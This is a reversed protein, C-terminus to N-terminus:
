RRLHENGVLRLQSPRSVIVPLDPNVPSAPDPDGTSCDRTGPVTRGTEAGSDADIETWTVKGDRRRSVWLTQASGWGADCGTETEAVAHIEGGDVNMWEVIPGQKEHTMFALRTGDPSVSLGFSAREVLRRCGLDDCRMIQPKAEGASLFWVKGNPLCAPSRESGEGTLGKIVRGTSDVREVVIRGNEVERSVILDRGCHNAFRIGKGHQRCPVSGDAQREALCSAREVSVFLLADALFIPHGLLQQPIRGMRRASHRVPDVEVLGSAGTGAYYLLAGVSRVDLAFENLRVGAVRELSPLRIGTVETHGVDLVASVFVVNGAVSRFLTYPQLTGESLVRVHRSATSFVGMHRSDVDYSFTQSDALWTPESSMTPEATPVVPVADKGGPHESLFAFARGDPVHGQYVLRKGDPSLDPCGEAYAAPVLPSPVRKRTVTDVDEARPPSGWVFRITRQDPLLRTCHIREPVEVLVTSVDTWDAAEGTPVILPSEQASSIRTGAPRPPSRLLGVAVVAVLTLGGAVMVPRRAVVLRRRWWGRRETLLRGAEGASAIRRAPEKATCARCAELVVREEETLKRGIDPPLMEGAVAESWRPKEGFVIEHMVLGLAWVDSAFSSLGGRAIEPAMYAVTGGHVSTSEGADTALGFDSLVLRGDGMRLLNQPTLDRHVIGAKHIADLASAVARADAIREELPRAALAGSRIEDRLTGNEALEMVLFVRAEAQEFDFVRCVHPHQIQRALKVERALREAWVREGALEARVIKIAVLARLDRDYARVVVGSGGRGIIKEITYRGGLVMGHRVPIAEVLDPGADEVDTWSEDERSGRGM